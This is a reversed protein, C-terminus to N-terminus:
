YLIHIHICMICAVETYATCETTPWHQRNGAWHTLPVSSSLPHLKANTLQHEDAMHKHTIETRWASLVEPNISRLRDIDGM